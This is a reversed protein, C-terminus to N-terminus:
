CGGFLELLEDRTVGGAAGSGDLLTAACARKRDHLKLIRQEISSKILFRHVTVPRLQTTRHARAIAQDEVAPNWWLDMLFVVNAATVNLGVGGAKLSMLLVNCTPDRAFRDLAEQRKKMNCSGDLRAFSHGAATVRAEILDLMQTWQTFILVKNPDQPDSLQLVEALAALMCKLKTSPRSHWAPRAAEIAPPTHRRVADLDVTRRCSPCTLDGGDFVLLADFCGDCLRHTCGLQLWDAVAGDCGACPERPACPAPEPPLLAPHSCAQRLRLLFTLIESINGKSDKSEQMRKVRWAAQQWLDNYLRQEEPSFAVEHCQVTLSPLQLAPVTDKTRRLLLSRLVVVFRRVHRDRLASPKWTFPRVVQAIWYQRIAWPKVNLFKFAAYLDEPSNQVPTGTLCWRYKAQLAFVAQTTAAKPNAIAQAEDLVVRNWVTQFLASNGTQKTYEHQLTAYTTLVVDAELVEGVSLKAPGHHRAVRLRQAVRVKDHLEREWQPLVSAPCVVLTGVILGRPRFPSPVVDAPTATSEAEEPVPDPDPLDLEDPECADHSVETPPLPPLLLLALLQVTKGLGMEDALVGGRRPGAEQRRLWAVGQAQYPKLDVALGPVVLPESLAIPTQSAALVDALMRQVDVRELVVGFDAGPAGGDPKFRKPFRVGLKPLRDVGPTASDASAPPLPTGIDAPRRWCKTVPDFYSKGVASAKPVPVSPETVLAPQSAGTVDCPGTPLIGVPGHGSTAPGIAM